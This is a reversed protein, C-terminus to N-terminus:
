DVHPLREAVYVIIIMISSSVLGLDGQIAAGEEARQGAPTNPLVAIHTYSQNM